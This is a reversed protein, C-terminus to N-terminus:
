IDRILNINFFYKTLGEPPNLNVSPKPLCNERFCKFSEGSTTGKWFHKGDVLKTDILKLTLEINKMQENDQTIDLQKLTQNSKTIKVVNAIRPGEKSNSLVPDGNVLFSNANRSLVSEGLYKSMGQVRRLRDKSLQEFSSITKLCTTKYVKKGDLM